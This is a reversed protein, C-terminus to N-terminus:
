GEIVVFAISYEKEHSLSVLVRKGGRKELSDLADGCLEIQPGGNENKVIYINKLSLYKFGTGLAKVFAEKAAFRSALLETTLTFGALERVNFYREIMAPKILWKEFRKNETIDTGIGIIM